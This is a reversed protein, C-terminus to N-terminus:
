KIKESKTFTKATGTSTMHKVPTQKLKIDGNEMTEALIRHFQGDKAKYRPTDVNTINSATLKGPIAQMDFHATRKNIVADYDITM